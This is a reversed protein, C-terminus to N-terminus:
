WKNWLQRPKATESNHSFLKNICSKLKDHNPNHAQVLENLACLPAAYSAYYNLFPVSPTFMTAFDLRPEDPKVPLPKAEFPFYPQPMQRHYARVVEYHDMLRQCRFKVKAWDKESMKDHVQSLNIQLEQLLQDTEFYVKYFMKLKQDTAHEKLIALNEKNQQALEKFANLAPLLDQHTNKLKDNPTLYLATLIAFASPVTYGKTRRQAPTWQIFPEMQKKRYAEDLHSWWENKLQPSHRVPKEHDDLLHTFPRHYFTINQFHLILPSFEKAYLDAVSGAVKDLQEENLSDPTGILASLKQQFDRMNKNIARYEQLYHDFLEKNKNETTALKKYPGELAELAKLHEQGNEVLGQCEKKLTQLNLVKKEMRELKEIQGEVRSIGLDLVPCGWNLRIEQRMQQWLARIKILKEKPAAAVQSPDMEKRLGNILRELLAKRLLGIKERGIEAIMVFDNKIQHYFTLSEKLSDLDISKNGIHADITRELGFGTRFIKELTQDEYPRCWRIFKRIFYFSPIANKEISPVLTNQRDVLQGECSITEWEKLDNVTKTWEKVNVVLFPDHLPNEKKPPLPHHLRYIERDIAELTDSVYRLRQQPDQHCRWILHYNELSKKWVSLIRCMNEESLDHARYALIGKELVRLLKVSLIDRYQNIKKSGIEEKMFDDNEIQQCFDLTDELSDLDRYDFERMTHMYLCKMISIRTNHIRELVPDIHDEGKKWHYLKRLTHFRPIWCNEIVPKLTKQGNIVQVDSSIREWVRVKKVAKTWAQLDVQEKPPPPPPKAGKKLPVAEPPNAGQKLPVAESPNAGKKLPMAESPNVGKLKLPVAATPIPQPKPLQKQREKPAVPFPTPLSTIAAIPRVM